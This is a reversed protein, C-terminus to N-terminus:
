IKNHLFLEFNSWIQNFDKISFNFEEGFLNLNENYKKCNEVIMKKVESKAMKNAYGLVKYM